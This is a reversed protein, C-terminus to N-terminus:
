HSSETMFDAIDYGDFRTPDLDIVRNTINAQTLIAAVAQALQRGPTDCDPFVTVERGHLHERLETIKGWGSAGLTALWIHEPHLLAGALANKESEVIAVPDKPRQTLLHAGFACARYGEAAQYRKPPLGTKHHARKGQSTYATERPQRAAGDPECTWFVTEGKRNTGVRYLQFAEIVQESPFHTAFWQFLGNRHYYAPNCSRKRVSAPITKPEPDPEIERQEPRPDDPTFFQDCSHCYGAAGMSGIIPSFKGDRNSKGCPCEPALQYRERISRAFKEQHDM